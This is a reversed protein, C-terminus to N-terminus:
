EPGNRFDKPKWKELKSGSKADPPNALETVEANSIFESAKGPVFVKKLYATRVMHLILDPYWTAPLTELGKKLDSYDKFKM